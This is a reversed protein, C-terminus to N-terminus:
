CRIGLKASAGTEDFYVHDLSLNIGLMSAHRRGEAGWVKVRGCQDVVIVEAAGGELYADVRRGIDQTRESDLLVEVCLDPVFRLPEDRDVGEWREAPMWIVDPVRIGFFPTIVPVSMAALHGIQETVCCFIDTFVIQRRASPHSNKLVEGRENLEYGDSHVNEKGAALRRWMALLGDHDPLIPANM